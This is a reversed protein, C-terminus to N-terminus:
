TASISILHSRAMQRSSKLSLLDRPLIVHLYPPFVIAAPMTMSIVHDINLVPRLDPISSINLVSNNACHISIDSNFLTFFTGDILDGHKM